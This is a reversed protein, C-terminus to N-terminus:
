TATQKVQDIVGSGDYADVMPDYCKTDPHVMDSWTRGPDLWPRQGVGLQGM